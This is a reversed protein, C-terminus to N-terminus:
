RTEPDQYQEHLSETGSEHGVTVPVSFLATFMHAGHEVEQAGVFDHAKIFLNM